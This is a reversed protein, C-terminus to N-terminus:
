CLLEHRSNSVLVVPQPHSLGPPFEPSFAFQYCGSVLCLHCLDDGLSSVCHRPQLVRPCLKLDDVFQVSLFDVSQLCAVCVDLPFFVKELQESVTVIVHSEM